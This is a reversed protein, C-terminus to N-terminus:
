GCRYAVNPANPPVTTRAPQTTAPSAPKPEGPMSFVSLAGISSRRAVGRVTPASGALASCAVVIMFLVLVGLAGTAAVSSPWRSGVTTDAATGTATAWVAITPAADGPGDGVGGGSFGSSGTCTAVTLAGSGTCLSTWSTTREESVRPERSVRSSHRTASVQMSWYRHDAYWRVGLSSVMLTGSFFFTVTLFFPLVRVTTLVTVLSTSSSKVQFSGLAASLTPM